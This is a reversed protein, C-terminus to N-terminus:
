FVKFENGLCIVSTPGAERLRRDRRGEKSDRPCCLSSPSRRSSSRSFDKQEEPDKFLLVETKLMSSSLSLGAGCCTLGSSPCSAATAVTSSARPKMLSIM